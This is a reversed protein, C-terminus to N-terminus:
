PGIGAEYENFDGFVQRKHVELYGYTHASLIELWLWPYNHDFGEHKTQDARSLYIFPEHDKLQGAIDNERYSTTKWITVRETLGRMTYLKGVQLEHLQKM